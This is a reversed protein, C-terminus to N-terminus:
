NAGLILETAKDKELAIAGRWRLNKLQAAAKPVRGDPYRGEDGDVLFTAPHM